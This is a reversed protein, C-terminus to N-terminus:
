NEFPLPLSESVPNIQRDIIRKLEIKLNNLKEVGLSSEIWDVVTQKTLEEYPVFTSGPQYELIQDTCIVSNYSDLKAEIQYVVRFVVNQYSEYTPYSEM